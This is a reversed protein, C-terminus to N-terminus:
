SWPVHKAGSGPGVAPKKMEGTQQGLGLGLWRRIRETLTPARRTGFFVVVDAVTGTDDFSVLLQGEEAAWREYGSASYSLGNLNGRSYDGPPAGVTRIVEERTMGEKVQKLRAM